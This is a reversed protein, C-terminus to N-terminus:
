IRIFKISKYHHSNLPPNAKPFPLKVFTDAFSRSQFLKAQHAMMASRTITKGFLVM